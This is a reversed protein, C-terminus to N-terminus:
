KKDHNEGALLEILHKIARKEIRSVYSRSINLERAIERQTKTGAPTLGFRMELVTREREPLTSIMTLLRNLELKNEVLEGVIEGHTGLVDLLIIENGEKDVGVTDYISVEVRNKKNSRLFMLIESFIVSSLCHVYASFAPFYGAKNFYLIQRLM